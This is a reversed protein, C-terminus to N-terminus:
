REVVMVENIVFDTGQILVYYIGTPWSNIDVKFDTGADAFYEKRFLQGDARYFHLQINEPQDFNIFLESNAPNPYFDYYVTALEQTSTLVDNEANFTPRLQQFNGIGNPFRGYTVDSIQDFYTVEDLINSAADLLFVSEASASLRFSAHLGEQDEDSDAWVILYAGAGITTGGPFDM